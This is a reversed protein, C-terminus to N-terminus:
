KDILLDQLIQREVNYRKHYSYDLQKRIHAYKGVFEADASCYNYESSRSYDYSEPVIFKHRQSVNVSQLISSMLITLVFLQVFKRAVEIVSTIFLIGSLSEASYESLLFTTTFQLFIAKRGSIQLCRRADIKPRHLSVLLRGEPIKLFIWAVCKRSIKSVEDSIVLMSLSSSQLACNTNNM